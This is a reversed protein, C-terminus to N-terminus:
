RPPSAPGYRRDMWGDMWGVWGHMRGSPSPGGLAVFPGEPDHSSIKPVSGQSPSGAGPVSTASALPPCLVARSPLARRPGPGHRPGLGGRGAGSGGRGAGTRDRRARRRRRTGPCRAATLARDGDGDGPGRGWGWGWGTGPAAAPRPQAPATGPPPRGQGAARGAGAGEAGATKEGKGHNEQRRVGPPSSGKRKRAQLQFPSLFM